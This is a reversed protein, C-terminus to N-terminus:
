LEGKFAKDLISPLLADLAAATRRQVSDVATIAEMLDDLGALVSKQERLPPIPLRVSALLKTNFGPRTAGRVQGFVQDRVSRAGHLGLFAFRPLCRSRDFRVRFLHGTMLWRDSSEPVVCVKGLTAGSRAFLLDDTQLSYRALQKAKEVTVHDLRALRLGEPWVNGVNLVPIGQEVFESKHLQAGFPGTQVPNVGDIGLARIAVSPYRSELEDFVRTIQAPIVADLLSGADARDRMAEEVKAALREIRAVIRRQEEIPPLDLDTDLFKEVKLRVRNTTGESARRCTDVFDRTRSKWALYRSDLAQENVAFTPFDTSVVAGDLEDPVLGFAGNRADIRSLIFDGATIQSRTRAKIESGLVYRRLKVGKGWLKVTVEKYERDPLIQVTHARPTLVAGYRTTTPITM